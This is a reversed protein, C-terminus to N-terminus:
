KRPLRYGREEIAEVMALLEDARDELPDAGPADRAAGLIADGGTDFDRGPDEGSEQRIWGRLGIVRVPALPGAGSRALAGDLAGVAEEARDFFVLNRGALSKVVDAACGQAGDGLVWRHWRVTGDAAAAAAGACTGITKEGARNAPLQGTAICVVPANARGDFEIRHRRRRRM